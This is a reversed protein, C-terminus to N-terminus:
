WSITLVMKRCSVDYTMTFFFFFFSAKNMFFHLYFPTENREEQRIQRYDVSEICRNSEWGAATFFRLRTTVHM